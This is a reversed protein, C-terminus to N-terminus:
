PTKCLSNPDSAPPPLESTFFGGSRTAAQLRPALGYEEVDRREVTAEPISIEHGHSGEITFDGVAVEQADGAAQEGSSAGEDRGIGRRRGVRERRRM